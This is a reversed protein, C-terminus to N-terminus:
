FLLPFSKNFSWEMPESGMVVTIWNQWRVRDVTVGLDHVDSSVSDEWRRRPIGVLRNGSRGKAIRYASRDEAM